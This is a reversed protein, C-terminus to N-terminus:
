KALATKALVEPADEAIQALSRKLLKEVIEGPSDRLFDIFPFQTNDQLEGDDSYLRVGAVRSALILRLDRNESKLRELDTM